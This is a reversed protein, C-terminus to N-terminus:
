TGSPRGSTVAENHATVGFSRLLPPYGGNIPSTFLVCRGCSRMASRVPTGGGEPETVQSHVRDHPVRRKSGLRLRPQAQAGIRLLLPSCAPFPFRRILRYTLDQACIFMFSGLAAGGKVGLVSDPVVDFIELCGLQWSGAVVGSHRLILCTQPLKTWRWPPIQRIKRRAKGISNPLDDVSVADNVM